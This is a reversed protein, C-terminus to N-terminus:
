RSQLVKDLAEEVCRELDSNVLAHLTATFRELDQEDDPLVTKDKGQNIYSWFAKRVMAECRHADVTARERVYAIRPQEETFTM